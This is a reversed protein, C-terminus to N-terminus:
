KANPHPHKEEVRPMNAPASLAKRHITEAPERSGDLGSGTNDRATLSQINQFSSLFSSISAQSPAPKADRKQMNKNLNSISVPILSGASSKASIFGSQGNSPADVPQNNNTPPFPFQRINGMKTNTTHLSPKAAVSYKRAVEQFHEPDPAPDKSTVRSSIKPKSRTAKLQYQSEMKKSTSGKISSQNSTASRAPSASILSSALASSLAEASVAGGMDTVQSMMYDLVDANKNEMSKPKYSENKKNREPKSSPPLSPNVECNCFGCGVLGSITRTCCDCPPKSSVVSHTAALPPGPKASIASGAPPDVPAASASAKKPPGAFPNNAKKSHTSPPRTDPPPQYQASSRNQRVTAAASLDPVSQASPNALTHLSDNNAAVATTSTITSMRDSSTRSQEHQPLTSRKSQQVEDYIMGKLQELSLKVSEFDFFLSEKPPATLYQVSYDYLTEADLLFKSKLAQEASPRHKPNVNLLSVILALADKNAQPVVDAMNQRAYRCRKSLFSSAETSVAFGLETVNSHGLVEFILQVQNAHSKGPFLPKRRILEAIICGISWLDIAESYPRNPALLLEPCRYWRTVVYETMPNQQNNGSLTKDDMFRALGFDTIRLKCDKSVLLNGPKLDRHFVGIAHMAKIGELMQKAFCKHHMESLGQKSQIIHHLDCDMLEMMMYLETKEEFVSLDFLSIVNPHPGLLKLLRVERLTHRADWEDNAYPRIRKIAIRENTLSDLATSVVGYSGRGLIKCNNLDYRKSVSFTHGNVVTQQIDIDTEVGRKNPSGDM